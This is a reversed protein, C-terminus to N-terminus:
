TEDELACGLPTCDRGTKTARLGLRLRPRPVSRDAIPRLHQPCAATAPKIFRGGDPALSPAPVRPKIARLFAMRYGSPRQIALVGCRFAEPLGGVRLFFMWVLTGERKASARPGCGM